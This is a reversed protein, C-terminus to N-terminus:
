FSSIMVKYTYQKKGDKEWSEQRMDGFLLIPKGKQFYKNINEATKGFAICNFFSVGKTEGFQWNEAVSINVITKGNQTTKLEPDRALNGYLTINMITRRRRLGM